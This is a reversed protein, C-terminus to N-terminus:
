NSFLAQIASSPIAEVGEGVISQLNTIATSNAAIDSANEAIDGKVETMDAQLTDIEGEAATLRSALDSDGLADAVCEQIYQVITQSSSGEPLQGILAELAAIDEENTNIKSNMSAADSSHNSIWDSIEKLTDYAEPAESVITAVADAVQKSVSGAGTGNLVTIAATAADVKATLETDDYTADEKAKDALEKAYDAINTSTATGPITGVYETLDTVSETTAFDSAKKGSDTLNGDADLGALNGATAGSVKDAKGTINVPSPLSISFAAEETTVPATKTYFYITHGDESLSVTKISTSVAANIKSAVDANLLSTYEQLNALTMVQLKAM